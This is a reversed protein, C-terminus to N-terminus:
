GTWNFLLISFDELGVNGNLNIDAPPNSSGGPTGWWFILISFDILNVFGDRNLDSNSTARGEVGVFLQLATGYISETQLRGEGTKFRAKVTHEAVSVSSTDFQVSWNGSSDSTTTLIQSEDDIAIEVTVNPVTQGSLTIVDGPNVEANNVRITPPILVGNVNTVAGQTVDFTTNFTASRTGQSDNAYFSMSVTGPDSETNFLFEGSSNTRVTGVSSGDLLITVTSNPFAKGQVTIETDGLESDQGGSRSSGGGGSSGGGADSQEATCDAACFDNDTNNGDDCEEGYITQLIGDGCYPGWLCDTGCQRGDITTSYTGTEGPVDCDEGANVLSDGCISITVTTTSIVTQANSFQPLGLFFLVGLFSVFILNKFHCEVLMKSEECASM